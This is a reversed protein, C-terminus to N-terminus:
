PGAKCRKILGSKEGISIAFGVIFVGGIPNVIESIYTFKPGKEIQLEIDHVEAKEGISARLSMGM